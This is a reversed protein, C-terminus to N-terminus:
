WTGNKIDGNKMFMRGKGWPVDARFEGKYKNGDKFFM